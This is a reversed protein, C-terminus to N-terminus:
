GMQERGLCHLQRHHGARSVLSYGYEFGLVAYESLPSDFAALKTRGAALAKLPTHRRPQESEVDWWTM